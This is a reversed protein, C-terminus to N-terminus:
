RRKPNSFVMFYNIDLNHPALSFRDEFPKYVLGSADSLTLGAKEGMRALESPKVFKEWEHTGEPAWGLLKEAMFIGLGYSKWTRNLTSFVIKGEPKVLKSCLEVFIKPDSVHELIELALVADFQEGREVLDEVAAHRYIIGLGQENAHASAARIANADADIGTVKAGLRSLPECVLGGGCGIDLINLGKPDGLIQKLYGMRAPAMKHLPAYSGHREWWDGAHASFHHIEAPDVTKLHQKSHSPRKM